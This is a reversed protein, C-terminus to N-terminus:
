FIPFGFLKGANQSTQECVGEFSLGKQAGLFEAVFKVYGPENRKGRKPVPALYPCDTELLIRDLPVGLAVALSASNKYTVTGGFGLHFNLKVAKEAQTLDGGFCHLVGGVRSAGERSLLELVRDEAGRSHLVMPLESEIAFRIHAIFIEEQIAQPAYDRFYDLGTEGVAVVQNHDLLEQVESLQAADANEVDHPHFGATAFINKYSESLAVAAQSVKLNTGVNVIRDVGAEKARLIVESRDDKYQPYSLHAHSDVLM